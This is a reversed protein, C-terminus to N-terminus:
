RLPQVNGYCIQYWIKANSIDKYNKRSSTDKNKWLLMTKVSVYTFRVIM